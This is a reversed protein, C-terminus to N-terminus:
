KWNYLLGLLVQDDFNTFVIVSKGSIEILSINIRDESNDIINNLLAEYGKPKIKNMINNQINDFRKKYINYIEDMKNNLSEHLIKVNNNEEIFLRIEEDVEQSQALIKKLKGLRNDNM